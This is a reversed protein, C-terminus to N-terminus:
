KKGPTGFYRFFEGTPSLVMTTNDGPFADQYAELSRYFAFFDADQGYAAGLVKTKEADGQGRLIESERTAEATLVTVEREARAKVRQSIEEGEARFENAERTREQQMRRYIAQSNQPPLDARRIRVDVIKIGYGDADRNIEDRIQVMLEARKGSLMAAFTQSGLVRRVDSSLIPTLRMTATTEDYLSQYFRLPDVIKWRAFADVVMRKKDQAIVEEAPADLNLLMKPIFQAQQLFPVKVHLGPETVLRQPAGFQLLLVQERPNVTYLSFLAVIIVIAAVIGGLFLGNRNM